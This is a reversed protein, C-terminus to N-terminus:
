DLSVAKGDRINAMRFLIDDTTATSVGRVSGDGLGFVVTGTHNSGWSGLAFHRSTVGPIADKEDGAGPSSEPVAAVFGTNLLQSDWPTKDFSTSATGSETATGIKRNLLKGDGVPTLYLLKVGWVAVSPLAAVPTTSTPAATLNTDSNLWGASGWYWAGLNGNGPLVTASEMYARDNRAGKRSIEGIVITNSTGDPMKLTGAKGAPLAGTFDAVLPVTFDGTLNGPTAGSGGVGVYSATFNTNSKKNSNNGSPCVYYPIKASTIETPVVNSTGTAPRLIKMGFRGYGDSTPTANIVVNGTAVVGSGDNIVDVFDFSQYISTQEVFPLLHVLIGARVATKAIINNAAETAPVGSGTNGTGGGWDFATNAGKTGSDGPLVEKYVDAFNHLGLSIQKVHNTCQMRRAAERAAQVAPLLLAVLVGIIAIVVLLEVLTFGLHRSKSM